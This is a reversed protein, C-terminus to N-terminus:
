TQESASQPHSASPSFIAQKTVEIAGGPCLAFGQAKQRESPLYGFEVWSDQVCTLWVGWEESGLLGQDPTTPRQGLSWTHSDESM